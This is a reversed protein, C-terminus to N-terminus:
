NLLQAALEVLYDDPFVAKLKKAAEAPDKNLWIQRSKNPIGAAREAQAMDTFEGQEARKAIDPNDRKLKSARYAANNGRESSSTVGYGGRKTHQNAGKEGINEAKKM